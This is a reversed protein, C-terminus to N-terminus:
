LFWREIYKKFVFLRISLICWPGYLNWVCIVVVEFVLEVICYYDVDGGRAEVIVRPRRSANVVLRRIRAWTIEAMWQARQVIHHRWWISVNEESSAMQAPFEGTVPSSGACFGTICLKSTKRSRHRFSVTLHVIALSTIQSAMAGMIVGSSHFSLQM